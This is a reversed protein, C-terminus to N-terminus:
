FRRCFSRNTEFTKVLAMIFPHDLGKLLGCERNVQPPTLSLPVAQTSPYEDKGRKRSVKAVHDDLTRLSESQLLKGAIGASADPKTRM